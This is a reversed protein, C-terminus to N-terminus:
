SARRPSRRAAITTTTNSRATSASSASPWRSRAPRSSRRSRAPAARVAPVPQRMRAPAQAHRGPAAPRPRGARRRAPLPLPLYARETFLGVFLLVVAYAVYPWAAPSSRPSPRRSRSSRRPRPRRRRAGAFDGPWSSARRSTSASGCCAEPAPRVSEMAAAQAGRALKALLEQLAGFPCLWGCFVGRGLIVLSVLTYLAIMVILPEALYFGLRLGRVAGPAYNVVNVISLQASAIWGLWVLTFLSSATASGAISSGTSRSGGRSCLIRTLM